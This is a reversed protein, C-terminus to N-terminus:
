MEPTLDNFYASYGSIRVLLNPHLDPNDRAEILVAPDLVNTQIQMGGRRFYTRLLSAFTTRGTKGRLTHHDFRANLNIGNKLQTFDFRNISNFLATPGKRDMGNGPAIGSSFCEGRRRGNPL